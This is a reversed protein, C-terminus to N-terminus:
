GVVVPGKKIKELLEAETDALWAAVDDATKLTGSSLTVRQTKPELLRAAALAAQRFREPLAEAATAWVALSRAAICARELKNRLESSLTPM